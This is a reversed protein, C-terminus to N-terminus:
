SLAKPDKEKPIKYNKKGISIYPGWRGNLIQVEKNKEFTKIVKEKDAKRKAEIIEIGRDEKITLPDDEKKLSYFANKHKIYPGFRGINVTIDADEYTGIMRPLKFLELADELGIQELRQ